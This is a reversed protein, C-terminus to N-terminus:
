MVKETSWSISQHLALLNFLTLTSFFVSEAFIELQSAQVSKVATATCTQFQKPIQILVTDQQIFPFLELM